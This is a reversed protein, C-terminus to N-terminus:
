DPLTIHNIKAIASRIAQLEAGVTPDGTKKYASRLVNIPNYWNSLQAAPFYSLGIIASQVIAGKYWLWPTLILAGIGMGGLTSAVSISTMTFQCHQYYKSVVRREEETFALNANEGVQFNRSALWRFGHLGLYGGCFYGIYWWSAIEPNFFCWGVLGLLIPLQIVWGM